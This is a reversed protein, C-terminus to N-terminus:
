WVKEQFIIDKMINLMNNVIDKQIAKLTDKDMGKQILV